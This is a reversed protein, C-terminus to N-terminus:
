GALRAPDADADEEEDRGGGLHGRLVYWKAIVAPVHTAHWRYRAAIEDLRTITRTPRPPPANGRLAPIRNHPPCAPAGNFQSTQGGLRYPLLHDIDCRDAPEDCGSSHQCRRDHAIIAERLAGTFTRRHSVSVITSPGDFLISELDARDLYPVLQGPSVVTGNGLECLRAVSDDGLTVRFLARARKAGSPRAASREAMMVLAAALRQSRTRTIGAQEDDRHLTAALRELETQVITGGVPDLEGQLLVRGDFSTEAYLSNRETMETASAEVTAADVHQTWYDVARQANEFTLTHCFGVLMEEDEAFADDRTPQKAAGLLRVHDLSLTGAALAAATRPMSRLRRARAVEVRATGVSCKAERALRVSPSRAGNSSWVGSRAWAEIAVARAAGLRHAAKMLGVALAQRDAAGLTEPDLAVVADIANDLQELETVM